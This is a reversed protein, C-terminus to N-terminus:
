VVIVPKVLYTGTIVLAQLPLYLFIILTLLFARSLTRGITVMSKPKEM